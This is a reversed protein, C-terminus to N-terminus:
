DGIRKGAEACAGHCFYSMGKCDWSAGLTYRNIKIRNGIGNRWEIFGETITAAFHFTGNEDVETIKTNSFDIKVISDSCTTCQTWSCKLTVERASAAVATVLVPVAFVIATFSQFVRTM